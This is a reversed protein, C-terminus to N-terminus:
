MSKYTIWLGLLTIPLGIIWKWHSHFFIKITHLSVAVQVGWTETKLDKSSEKGGENTKLTIYIFLERYGTTLPTIIFHWVAGDSILQEKSSTSKIEFGIGDLRVEMHESIHLTRSELEGAGLMENLVKFSNIKSVAVSANVSEFLNMKNPIDHYARGDSLRSQREKLCESQCTTEDISFGKNNSIIRALLLLIGIPVVLGIWDVVTWGDM